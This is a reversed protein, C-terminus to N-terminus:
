RLERACRFGLSSFRYSPVSRFRGSVRVVLPHNDWSGGRMVKQTGEGPGPPDDNPSVKSYDRDYWDNTWEWVNGLMDYLGWANPWKSRVIATGSTRGDGYVAIKGIEGYYENTNGARAAYEWEAETPLRMKVERCYQDADYWSVSEVPLDAGRFHSPNQGKMVKAYAAQTVETQGIWFGKTIRVPHPTDDSSCDIDCGMRFEGPPIYVYKLGDKPNVSKRTLLARARLLGSQITPLALALLLGMVLLVSGWRLLSDKRSRRQSAGIFQDLEPRVESPNREKWRIARELRGGRLLQDADHGAKRWTQEAQEVERQFIIDGRREGVWGRLKDWERILAEHAISVTERDEADGVTVLREDALIQLVDGAGHGPLSLVRAKPIRRASDETGEGIATLEVFIRRAMERKSETALEKDLVWDAHTRIAGKLRGIKNYHESTPQEGKCERWLQDLAHEVLALAGPQTGAEEVITDALTPDLPVGAIAMPKVIVERLSNQEMRRVSYHQGTLLRWLEPYPHCLGFFDARLTIVVQLTSNARQAGRLVTDIFQATDGGPDNGPPALTFLQEFQDIVLLQRSAAPPQLAALIETLGDANGNRHLVAKAEGILRLRDAPGLAPNWQPVAEALTDLADQGPKMTAIRWDIMGARGRLLAPILGARVLSSKGSGSDGIVPLFRTNTDALRDLLESVERDRGFFLLSDETDFTLLGRFPSAGPPLVSIREPPAELIAAAIKQIEPADPQHGDLKLYQHQKLFLPLADEKAGPGLLPIVRYNPDITNRDLAYRVERDVWRQVGAAGVLVVFHTSDKLATELASSWQEGPKIEDLDLWVALGANRLLQAVTKAGASDASSHSLFVRAM